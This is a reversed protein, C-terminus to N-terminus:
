NILLWCSIILVIFEVRIMRYLNMVDCLLIFDCYSEFAGNSAPELLYTGNSSSSYRVTLSELDDM